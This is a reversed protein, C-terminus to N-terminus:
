PVEPNLKILNNLVSLVRTSITALGSAKLRSGTRAGSFLSFWSIISNSPQEEHGFKTCSQIRLLLPRLNVFCLM